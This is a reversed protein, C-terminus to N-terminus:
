LYRKIDIKLRETQSRSGPVVNRCSAKVGIDDEINLTAIVLQRDEKAAHLGSCVSM